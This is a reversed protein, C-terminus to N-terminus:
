ASPRRFRAARAVGADSFPRTVGGAIQETEHGKGAILILDDEAAEHIAMAIARARDIEETVGAHGELGERISAAIARPDESRPNDSTLVVRDASRAAAGLLPRKARDRDGGAGFVVTVRGRCLARATVLTRALADPSHAYDIVVDPREAVREFRGPLSPCESVVSAAIAPPVGTAVGAAFAALANEAFIEGIARTSLVEVNGARSSPELDIRTGSWDFTVGRATLDLPSWADARSRLGYRIKEVRAPVLEDILSAGEDCGNLIAAGGEPLHMFLQAKSALYQEMSAHADLHDHSINTFVAVRPPWGRAAGLLLAESTFEVAAYRGGRALCRQMTQIFGEYGPPVLIAEEDLFSGLTTVKAVPRCITALLAAILFTTTTKGNTGTVGVTFLDQAFAPAAPFPRM